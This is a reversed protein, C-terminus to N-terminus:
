RWIQVVLRIQQVLVIIQRISTLLLKNCVKFPPDNKWTLRPSIRVRVNWSRQRKRTFLWRCVYLWMWQSQCIISLTWRLEGLIPKHSWAARRKKTKTHFCLHCLARQMYFLCYFVELNSECLSMVLLIFLVNTCHKAHPSPIYGLYWGSLALKQLTFFPFRLCFHLVM